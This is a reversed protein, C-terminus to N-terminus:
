LRSRNVSPGSRGRQHVHPDARVILHAQRDPGLYLSHRLSLSRSQLCALYAEGPDPKGERVRVISQHRDSRRDAAGKEGASNRVTQGSINTLDRVFAVAFPCLLLPAVSWM